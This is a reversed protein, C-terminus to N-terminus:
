ADDPSPCPRVSVLGIAQAGCAVHLAHLVVDFPADPHLVKRPKPPNAAAREVVRVLRPDPRVGEV